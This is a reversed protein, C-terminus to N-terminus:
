EKRHQLGRMSGELGNASKLEFDVQMAKAALVM